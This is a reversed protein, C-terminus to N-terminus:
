MFQATLQLRERGLVVYKEILGVLAAAEASNGAQSTLCHLEM